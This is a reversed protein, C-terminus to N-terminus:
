RRAYKELYGLIVAMEEETLPARVGTAEVRKEMLKIINRWRRPSLTLPHLVEHCIGCKKEYLVAAESEKEPLELTCGAALLLLLPILGKVIRKM